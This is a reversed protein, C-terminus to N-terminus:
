SGPQIREPGLVMKDIHVKEPNAIGLDLLEANNYIDMIPRTGPAAAKKQQRDLELIAMVDIAVPDHSFWLQNVAASYHLLSREEGQYQCILGDVINLVVKDSISPLAYLEPIANALRPPDLEFRRLNDTSSLAMGALAGYVGTVNHNLLPTISILKTINTTVLKSVFSKRGIGEGKQGFERDGWILTGLLPSEYFQTEDYSEDFSGALRVGYQEALASYGALKLDSLKRDWVIIQKAPIGAKLLGEIVGAVVPRRTGSTQGPASHVKLGIVDQTNVLSLWAEKATKKGTIASLGHEVMGKVVETQANYTQTARADEVVWVQGHAWENTAAEQAFSNSVTLGLWVTMLAIVTTRTTFM